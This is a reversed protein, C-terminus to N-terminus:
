RKQAQKYAEAYRNGLVIYSARDFHVMHRDPSACGTSEVFATYDLNEPIARLTAKVQKIHKVREPARHNTGTGYFEALNGVVFPLKKDDLDSRVDEILQHLKAKYTNAKTANVTDSEGQHWLVGKIEGQTMAFEAKKMADIYAPTGKNIKDIPVGGWAVSILGVTVGPNAKLYVKAFPLGLGFRDSKNRNHLPHAAPHWAIPGNTPINLVHLVPERDAPQLLGFGSMNSQGMLLFIHFKKSSDPIDWASSPPTPEAAFLSLNCVFLTLLLRQIM